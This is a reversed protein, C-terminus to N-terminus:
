VARRLQEDLPVLEIGFTDQADSNSVVNDPGTLMKLQDRTLPTPGPLKELIAAGVHMVGLPVHVKPRRKGLVRKIRDYLEEWTVIDPGGIEFTRNVAEAHDIAAAYYEAVNEVWIPQIRQNGAGFVPIVPSLRVVRLFTQLAGGDKGFIFSPRFIVHELGSGKVDQEMQWKAGFYPALEKTEESTGLASMLVFRRGGAATAAEVVNRTGQVMIREFEAPKGQIIAVLHVIVECGQVARRVSGPDTVDGQALECGWAALYKARDPDRVFCRVPFDAARLAHVIKPGVFGTGGTVLITPRRASVDAAVRTDTEVTTLRAEV